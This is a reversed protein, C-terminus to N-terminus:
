QLFATVEDVVVVVGWGEGTWQARQPVPQMELIFPHSATRAAVQTIVCRSQRAM